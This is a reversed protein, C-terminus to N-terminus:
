RASGIGAHVREAMGGIELRRAADRGLGPRRRQVVEKGAIDPHQLGPLDRRIKMGPVACEGLRVAVTNQVSPRRCGEISVTRPMDIEREVGGEEDPFMVEGGKPSRAAAGLRRYSRDFRGDDSFRPLEDVHRELRVSEQLIHDSIDRTGEDLDTKAPERGPIYLAHERRAVPGQRAPGGRRVTKVQYM